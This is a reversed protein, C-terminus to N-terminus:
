QPNIRPRGRQKKTSVQDQPLSQSAETTPTLPKKEPVVEVKTEYDLREAAHAEDVLHNLLRIPHEKSTIVQGKRCEGRSTITNGLIKVKM